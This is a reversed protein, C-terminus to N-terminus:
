GGLHQTGCSWVRGSGSDIRGDLSGPTPTGRPCVSIESSTFQARSPEIYGTLTSM